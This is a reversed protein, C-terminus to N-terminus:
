VSFRSGSFRKPVGRGVMGYRSVKRVASLASLAIAFSATLAAFQPCMSLARAVAVRSVMTGDVSRGEGSAAPAAGACGVM